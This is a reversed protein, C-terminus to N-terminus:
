IMIKKKLYKLQYNLINLFFESHNRSKKAKIITQGKTNLAALM